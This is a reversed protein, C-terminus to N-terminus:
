MVASSASSRLPLPFTPCPSCPLIRILPVLVAHSCLSHLSRLPLNLYSLCCSSNPSPSRPLVHFLQLAFAFSTMYTIRISHDTTSRQFNPPAPNPNPLICTALQPGASMWPCGGKTCRKEPRHWAGQAPHM